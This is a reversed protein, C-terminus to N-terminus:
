ISGYVTGNDTLSAYTGSIAAGGAGGGGSGALGWGGGSVTQNQTTSLISGGIGGPNLSGGGGILTGSSNITTGCDDVVSGTAFCSGHATTGSGAYAGQNGGSARTGTINTATCSLPVFVVGSDDNGVCGGHRSSSALYASTTFSGGAAGAQGPLSQGAGGGGQSGGGGGGGGAIFAGSNNTIDVTDSTTINLATGGAGGGGGGGVGTINGSNVLSVGSPFSGALSAGNYLTVGANVNAILRTAEDWGATIALARIDATATDSTINFAFQNDAGYFDSIDIAGSTPIGTAGPPVYAGNRYYESLSIPNVGGFETQINSLSIAGSSTIAM